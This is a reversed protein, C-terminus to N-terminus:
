SMLYLNLFEQFSVLKKWQFDLLVVLEWQIHKERDQKGMLWFLQMIDTFVVWFWIELALILYLNKLTMKGFFKTLSLAKKALKYFM